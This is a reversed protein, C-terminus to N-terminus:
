RNSATLQNIANLTRELTPLTPDIDITQLENLSSQLSRGITSEPATYRRLWDIGNEISRRYLTSDRLLLALQAQELVLRLNQKILTDQGPAIMAVPAEDWKRWVFISSLFNLSADIVGGDESVVPVPQSEADRRSQFSDRMSELLDISQIQGILADLRLYIGSHDVPIVEKLLLLDDAIAQRAAFVSNSGSALLAADANELLAISSTVDAQLQLKQSAIGLLYEAERIKWELNADSSVSNQQQQVAGLQQRLRTIEASLQEQLERMATDDVPVAEVPLSQVTRLQDIESNQSTLTQSLQDNQANLEALRLQLIWQQYGLLLAGAILVSFICLVVIFRKRATSQQRSAPKASNSRSLEDLIKPTEPQEEM